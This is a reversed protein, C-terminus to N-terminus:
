VNIILELGPVIANPDYIGNYSMIAEANRSDGTCIRAIEAFSDGAKCTYLKLSGPLIGRTYSVGVLNQDYKSGNAQWNPHRYETLSLSYDVDDTPGHKGYSFSEIAMAHNIMTGTVIFRIPVCRKQWSQIMRVYEFPRIFGSRFYTMPGTFKPNVSHIDITETSKFTTYQAYSREDAPFHSSFSIEELDPYGILNLAGLNLVSVKTNQGACNMEISEPLVPLM